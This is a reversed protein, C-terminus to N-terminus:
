NITRWDEHVKCSRRCTKWSKGPNEQAYRVPHLIRDFRFPTICIRVIDTMKCLEILCSKQYLCVVNSVDTKTQRWHLDAARTKVVRFVGITKCILVNNRSLKNANPWSREIFWAGYKTRMQMFATVCDRLVPLSRYQRLNCNVHVLKKTWTFLQLLESRSARNEESRIYNLFFEAEFRCYKKGLKSRDSRGESLHVSTM